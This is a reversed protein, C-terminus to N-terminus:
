SGQRARGGGFALVGFGACGLMLLGLGISVIVSADVHFPLSIAAALPLSIPGALIALGVIRPGVGASRVLSAGCALTGILTALGGGFVLILYPLSQLENSGPPIVIAARGLTVSLMGVAVLGLGLRLRSGFGAPPAIGVLAAGAGILPTFATVLPTDGPPDGPGAPGAPAAPGGFAVAWIGALVSGVILLVGGARLSVM